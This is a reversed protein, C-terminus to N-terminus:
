PAPRRSRGVDGAMNRQLQSREGSEVLAAACQPKTPPTDVTWRRKGRGRAQNLRKQNHIWDLVGASGVYDPLPLWPNPTAVRGLPTTGAPEVRECASRTRSTAWEKYHMIYGFYSTPRNVPLPWGHADFEEPM